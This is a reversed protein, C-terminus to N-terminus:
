GGVPVLEFTLPSDLGPEVTLTREGPVYGERAVRITHQGVRLSLRQPTYGMPEGNVVVSANALPRGDPTQATVAVDVTQTFDVTTSFTDGAELRVTKEWRASRYTLTLRYTGPALSDTVAADTQRARVTGDISVDAFPIARVSVVAPVPELQATWTADDGAAVSVDRQAARFGERRLTVRRTGADVSDLAVPTAGVRVGDIWVAAGSPTSAVRLRGVPASPSDEVAGKDASPATSASVDTSPADASSPDTSATPPRSDGNEPDPRAADDSPGLHVRIRQARVVVLTTDVPPTGPTRLQLALSGPAVALSRLPTQGVSDGDVVVTAGPTPSTVTLSAPEVHESVSAAAGTSPSATSATADPPANPVQLVHHVGYVTAALVLLGVLILLIWVGVGRRSSAESVDLRQPPTDTSVDDLLALADAATDPRDDSAKALLRMVFADLADPIESRLTSPPDFDDEVIARQVEYSSATRDFPLRGTLTEYAIMGLSFLDSRADVHKLSRIQEPSMYALTGATEYTATLDDDSTVIKALGFDSIKAQGGSTLLVNSPKLDRHLVDAAHAHAVANLLQRLLAIAQPIPLAGRADLLADLSPGDVYEMVLVPARDTERMAHVRVIGPADLRALARAEAQFRGRFTSEEALHPAVVKLAVTKQLATDTARYVTGMGGRGIM